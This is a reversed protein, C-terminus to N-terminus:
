VVQAVTYCNSVPIHYSYVFPSELHYYIVAWIVWDLMLMDQMVIIGTNLYIYM